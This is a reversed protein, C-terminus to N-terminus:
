LNQGFNTCTASFSPDPSQSLQNLVNQLVPSDDFM